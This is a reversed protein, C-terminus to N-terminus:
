NVMGILRTSVPTAVRSTVELPRREGSRVSAMWCTTMTM